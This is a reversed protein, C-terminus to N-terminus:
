VRCDQACVCEKPSTKSVQLPSETMDCGGSCRADAARAAGDCVIVVVSGDVPVSPTSAGGICGALIRRRRPALAGASLDTCHASSTTSLSPSPRLLEFPLSRMVLSAAAQLSVRLLRNCIDCVWPPRRTSRRRNRRRPSPRMRPRRRLHRCSLCPERTRACGHRSSFVALSSCPRREAASVSDWHTRSLASVSASPILTQLPHTSFSLTVFMQHSIFRIRVCERGSLCYYQVM